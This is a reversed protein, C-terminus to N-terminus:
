RLRPRGRELVHTELVGLPRQDAGRDPAVAAAHRRRRVREAQRAACHIAPELLEAELRVLELGAVPAARPSRAFEPATATSLSGLFGRYLRGTVRRRPRVNWRRMTSSVSAPPSGASSAATRSSRSAGIASETCRRMTTTSTPTQTPKAIATWLAVM